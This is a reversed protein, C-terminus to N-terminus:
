GVADRQARLRYAGGVVRYGLRANVQRIGTNSAENMTHCATAGASAALRHGYQKLTFALGRGRYARGVGTYAIGLVGDDIDGIIIAAPAGDVRALAAIPQDVKATIERYDDLRSVFGEAAEPNTQSDLLMAEVADEDDFELTSVDELTVGPGAAPEPLDVLDLESEIGHQSVEYGHARAIALSDDDSDDVTLGITETQDPLAALLARHLASGIGRREHDRAVAVALMAIEPPFWRGRLASGWGVLEGDDYAARLELFAMQGAHVFPWEAQPRRLRPLRALRLEVLPEYPPGPVRIEVVM